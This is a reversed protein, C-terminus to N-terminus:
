GGFLRKAEQVSNRRLDVDLGTYKGSRLNLSGPEDAITSLEEIGNKLKWIMLSFCSKTIEREGGTIHVLKQWIGLCKKAVEIMKHATDKYGMNETKILITNDDVYSMLWQFFRRSANPNTYEVGHGTEYEYVKELPLMLSHCSTPVGGNGQGLGGPNNIM